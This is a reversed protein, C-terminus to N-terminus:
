SKVFFDNITKISSVLGDRLAIMAAIITLFIACAVNMAGLADIKVEAEPAAIVLILIMLYTAMSVVIPTIICLDKIKKLM